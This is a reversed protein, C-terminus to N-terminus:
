KEFVDAEEIGLTKLISQVEKPAEEISLSKKEILNEQPKKSFKEEEDVKVPINNEIAAEKEEVIPTEEQPTVLETAVPIVEGELVCQLTTPSGTIQGLLSEIIKKFDARLLRDRPFSQLFAVVAQQNQLSILKGQEACAKIARKNQVELQGLLQQWVKENEDSVETSKVTTVEQQVTSEAQPFSAETPALEGGTSKEPEDKPPEEIVENKQPAIEKEISTSIKEVPPETPLNAAEIIVSPKVDVRAPSAERVGETAAVPPIAERASGRSDELGIIRRELEQIREVLITVDQPEKTDQHVKGLAMELHLRADSGVRLNGSERLFIELWRRFSGETGKEAQGKLTEWEEQTVQEKVLSPANFWLVLLRLYELLQGLTQRPEQGNQRLEEVLTLSKSINKEILSDVLLAMAEQGVLGLLDRVLKETIPGEAMAVAQDLISLADRLGGGAQVAILQLASPEASFRSDAMVEELREVIDHATIRRFDYRQCRSLITAPIKQPETTALIFVVHSPPEELTKLFANFADNTVMHVEDIIYVKYAGETPAFKVAERLDRIQDIGRNSAADIEFVDMSSGDQIGVCNSCVGCPEGDERRNQCNLAKALIKATSTKGTGRPGTFLYAHSIRGAAVSNKLTRRIPDQGVLADFGQPRWKRYLAVYAM